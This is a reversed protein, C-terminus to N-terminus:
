NVIKAYAGPFNNISLNFFALFSAAENEPTKAILVKASSGDSWALNGSDNRPQFNLIGHLNQPKAKLEEGWNKQHKVTLQNLDANWAYSTETDPVFISNSSTIFLKGNHSSDDLISAVTGADGGTGIGGALALLSRGSSAIRGYSVDYCIARESDYM